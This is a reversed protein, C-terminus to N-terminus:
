APRSNSFITDGRYIELPRFSSTCAANVHTGAIEDRLMVLGQADSVYRFTRDDATGLAGDAGADIASALHGNADYTHYSYGPKARRRKGGRM